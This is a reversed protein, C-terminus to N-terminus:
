LKSSYRKGSLFLGKTCPNCKNGIAWLPRWASNKPHALDRREGRRGEKGKVKGKEGRKEKRGKEETGKTTPGTFATLLDGDPSLAGGLPRRRLWLLFRIKHM